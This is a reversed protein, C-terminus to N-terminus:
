GDGDGLSARRFLVKEEVKQRAAMAERGLARKQLGAGAEMPLRPRGFKTLLQAPPDEVRGYSKRPREDMGMEGTSGVFINSKAKFVDIQTYVHTIHVCLETMHVCVLDQLM